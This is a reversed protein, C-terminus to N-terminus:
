VENAAAALGTDPGFRPHERGNAGKFVQADVTPL